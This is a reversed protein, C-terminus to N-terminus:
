EDNHSRYVLPQRTDHALRLATLFGPWGDLIIAHPAFSRVSARVQDYIRGSLACSLMRPPYKRPLGHLLARKRRLSIVATAREGVKARNAETEEGPLTWYLVQLQVGRAALAVLRNWMDVKGGHTPPFPM